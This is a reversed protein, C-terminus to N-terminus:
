SLLSLVLQPAQNAQGLMSTAAQQMIQFRTFEAMESAMDTDRIRSEASSLNETTVALNKAAHELRNQTAGYYARARSVEAIVEDIKDLEVAATTDTPDVYLWLDDPEDSFNFDLHGSDVYRGILFRDISMTDGANAGIQLEIAESEPGTSTTGIVPNGAFRSRDAIAELEELLEAREAVEAVGDNLATNLRGLTLDRMRQLIAHVENLAGDLTQVISIGDQINRLAQKSGGIEARLNESKVLGAADDAARNIRQGSSLRELRTGLQMGAQFLNRQTNLAAVNNAIRM